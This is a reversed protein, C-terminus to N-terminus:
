VTNSFMVVKCSETILQSVNSDIRQLTGDNYHSTTIPLRKVMFINKFDTLDYVCFESIQLIANYGPIKPNSVGACLAYYQLM